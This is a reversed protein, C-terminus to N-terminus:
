KNPGFVNSRRRQSEKEDPSLKMLTRRVAKIGTSGLLKFLCQHSLKIKKVSKPDVLTFAAGLINTFNVGSRLISKLSWETKRNSMKLSSM